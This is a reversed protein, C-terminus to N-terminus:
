LSAKAKNGRLVKGGTTQGHLTSMALEACELMMQDFRVGRCRGSMGSNMIHSPTIVAIPGHLEALDTGTKGTFLNIAYIKM